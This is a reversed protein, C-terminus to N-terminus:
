KKATKQAIPRDDEERARKSANHKMLIVRVMSQFLLTDRYEVSAVVEHINQVAYRGCAEVVYQCRAFFFTLISASNLQVFKCESGRKWCYFLTELTLSQVANRGSIIALGDCGFRRAQYLLDVWDKTSWEPLDEKKCYGTHVYKLYVRFLKETIDLVPVKRVGSEEVEANAIAEKFYESASKMWAASAHFDIDGRLVFTVDHFDGSNMFNKATKQLCDLAHANNQQALQTDNLTAM